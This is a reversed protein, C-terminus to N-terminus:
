YQFAEIPESFIFQCKRCGLKLSNKGSLLMLFDEFYNVIGATKLTIILCIYGLNLSMFYWNIKKRVKIQSFGNENFYNNGVKVCVKCHLFVTYITIVIQTFIISINSKTLCYNLKWSMLINYLLFHISNM